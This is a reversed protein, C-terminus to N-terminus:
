RPQLVGLIQNLLAALQGLLGSLGGNLLNVVACLLDGLLGAGPVATIDLDIADLQIRLGLLNLDLPGLDLNLINCAVAQAQVASASASGAEPLQVPTNVRRTVTRVTQGAADQVALRLTGVVALGKGQKHFREPAFTGTVTGTRGARDTWTGTVSSTIAGAAAPASVAGQRTDPAAALAPAQAVGLLGAAVLAAVAPVRLTPTSRPM